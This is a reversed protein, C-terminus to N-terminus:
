VRVQSVAGSSEGLYSKEKAVVEIVLTLPELLDPAGDSLERTFEVEVEPFDGLQRQVQQECGRVLVFDCGYDSHKPVLVETEQEGALKEWCVGLFHHNGKTCGNWLQEFLVSFLDQQLKPRVQARLVEAKEFSADLVFQESVSMELLEKGGGVGGEQQFPFALNQSRDTLHQFPVLALTQVLGGRDVELLLLPLQLPQHRALDVTAVPKSQHKM